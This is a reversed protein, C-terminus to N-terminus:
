MRFYKIIFVMGTFAIYNYLVFYHYKLGTVSSLLLSCFIHRLHYSVTNEDSFTLQYGSHFRASYLPFRIQVSVSSETVTSLFKSLFQRGPFTELRRSWFWQKSTPLHISLGVCVAKKPPKRKSFPLSLSIKFNYKQHWILKKSQLNIVFNGSTGSAILLFCFFFISLSYNFSHFSTGWVELSALCVPLIRDPPPVATSSHQKAAMSRTGRLGEERYLLLLDGDLAGVRPTPLLYEGSFYRNAKPAYIIPTTGGWRPTWLPRELPPNYGGSRSMKGREDFFGWEVFWLLDYSWQRVLVSWRHM